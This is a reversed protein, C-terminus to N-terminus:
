LAGGIPPWGFYNQVYRVQLIGIILGFLGIASGFIEVILIRVFLSPDAADSLAASSGVIGVSIGCFLNTLGVTLGCGFM